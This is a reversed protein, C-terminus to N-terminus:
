RRENFDMSRFNPPQCLKISILPVKFPLHSSPLSRQSALFCNTELDENVAAGRERKVRSCYCKKVHLAEEHKQHRDGGQRDPHQQDGEVDRQHGDGRREAVAGPEGGEPGVQFFTRTLLLLPLCHHHILLRFHCRWDKSADWFPGFSCSFHDRHLLLLFLTAYRLRLTIADIMTKNKENPRTSKETHTPPINLLHINALRKSWLHKQTSTKKEM